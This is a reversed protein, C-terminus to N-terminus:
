SLYLKGYSEFVQEKPPFNHDLSLMPNLTNNAATEARRHSGQPKKMFQEALKYTQERNKTTRNFGTM